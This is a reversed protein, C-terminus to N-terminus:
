DNENRCASRTRRVGSRYSPYRRTSLSTSSTCESRRFSTSRGPPPPRCPPSLVTYAGDHHEEVIFAPVLAEEIEVLAVAFTEDEQRGAVRGALGRILTYGPIRELLNRELANKARIGVGTRLILGALFCGAILILLAFLQRFQIAAPIQNTIPSVLAAVVSVSKAILLVCLYVPLIVLLGGILTTKTFEAIKKM